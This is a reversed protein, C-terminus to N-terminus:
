GRAWEEVNWYESDWGNTAGYGTISNSIGSVNARHILPIISGAVVMDNLEIVLADQGPDDLPTASAITWLADYEESYYRVINEGGWSTEATPIDQILFGKMYVTAAPNTAGNTYMQIDSPFQWICHAACTGDFFLGSDVNIMETKIGIAEWYSKILDQETQRVANTSTAYTFDLELGEPTERVGDSNTDLYGADDLMSNALDPDYKCLPDTNTSNESGVPWINCTPSGGLGYAVLAIEDRNIAISMADHLVPKEFFYPNAGSMDDGFVSPPDADPNTQNLSIHEVDANFGTTIRGNGAEEMPLLIEPAVQLNWAYDGEGIELVSRATAEADGGGKIEVTSFFPKGESALRYLPNVAYQVTDEPRLDTVMYPGTGIPAFNQESCGTAAAGICSEMQAKQLIPGGQYSSFVVFPFPQPPDFSVKVALDSVAEVGVVSPPPPSSCGTAEDACYDFSFLVDASTFPTGDSWLVCDRLTFTVSSDDEAIGGNEKTPVEAALAAVATGDPAFEILPENVLSGALLDKTGNSLLANAQSPAQWQFLLLNDGAGATSDAEVASNGSSCWSGDAAAAVTTETAAAVTTETAAAVTTETAAAVTTDTADDSSSCAAAVMAFTALLVLIKTRRV